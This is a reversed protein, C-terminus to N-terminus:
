TNLLGRLDRRLDGQGRKYAHEFLRSAKRSYTGFLKDSVIYEYDGGSLKIRVHGEIHDIEYNGM